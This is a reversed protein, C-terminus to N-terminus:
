LNLVIAHPTKMELLNQACLTFSPNRPLHQLCKEHNAPIRLTSFKKIIIMALLQFPTQPILLSNPCFRLTNQNKEQCLGGSAADPSAILSKDPFHM